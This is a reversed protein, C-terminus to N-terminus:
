TWQDEPIFISGATLQVTNLMYQNGVPALSQRNSTDSKCIIGSFRTLCESHKLPHFSLRTRLLFFFCRRGRLAVYCVWITPLANPSMRLSVMFFQSFKTYILFINQLQNRKHVCWFYAPLKNFPVTNFNKLSDLFQYLITNISYKDWHLDERVAELHISKTPIGGWFILSGAVKSM